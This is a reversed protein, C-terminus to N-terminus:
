TPVRQSQAVKVPVSPKKLTQMYRNMRMMGDIEIKSIRCSRGSASTFSHLFRKCGRKVAKHSFEFARGIQDHCRFSGIGGAVAFHIGIARKGDFLCALREAKM